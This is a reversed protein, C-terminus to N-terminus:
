QSEGWSRDLLSQGYTMENNHKKNRTEEAGITMWESGHSQQVDADFVDLFHESNKPRANRREVIDQRTEKNEHKKAKSQVRM